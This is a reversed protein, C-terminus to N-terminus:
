GDSTLSHSVPVALQEGLAAHVLMIPLKVQSQLWPYLPFPIVHTPLYEMEVCVCYSSHVHTEGESTSSYAVPVSLQGGLAAHVLLIPLKVQEQLWPYLPSPNSHKPILSIINEKM